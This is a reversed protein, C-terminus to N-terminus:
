NYNFTFEPVAAVSDRRLANANLSYCYTAPNHFYSIPLPGYYSVRSSDPNNMIIKSMFFAANQKMVGSWNNRNVYNKCFYLRCLM